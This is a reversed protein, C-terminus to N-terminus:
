TILILVSVVYFHWGISWRNSRAVASLTLYLYGISLVLIIPFTSLVVCIKGRPLVKYRFAVSM